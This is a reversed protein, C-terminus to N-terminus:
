LNNRRMEQKQLKKEKFRELTGSEEMELKIKKELKLIAAMDLLVKDENFKLEKFKTKMKEEINLLLQM